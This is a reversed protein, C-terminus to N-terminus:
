GLMGFLRQCEADLDAESRVTHRAVVERLCRRFEDRARAFMRHLADRDMDWMAALEHISRGEGFRAQLLAVRLKATADGAEARDRMLEGATRMLTHAWQRDFAVSQHEDDSALGNLVTDGSACARRRERQELHQAVHRVVGFLYGRFEGREAEARRLPGDPRFCAVFVDHAADDVLSHLPTGRWRTHLFSRVLPQYARYFRSRARGDGRAAKDVLSWCTEGDPFVSSM